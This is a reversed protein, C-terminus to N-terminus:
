TWTQSDPLLAAQTTTIGRVTRVVDAVSYDPSRVLSALLGRVLSGYTENPRSAM